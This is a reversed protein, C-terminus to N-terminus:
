ALPKSPCIRRRREIITENIWLIFCGRTANLGEVTRLSIMRTKSRKNKVMNQEIVPRIKMWYAEFRKPQDIDVAPYMRPIRAKTARRTRNQRAPIVCIKFFFNLKWGKKSSTQITRNLKMVSATPVAIMAMLLSEPNKIVPVLCVMEGIKWYHGTSDEAAFQIDPQSTVTPDIIVEIAFPSPGAICPRKAWKASLDQVASTKALAANASSSASNTPPKANAPRNSKPM